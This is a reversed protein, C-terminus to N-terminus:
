EEEIKFVARLPAGDRGTLETRGIKPFVFEAMSVVARVAGMPDPEEFVVDTTTGDPNKRTLIGGTAAVRVWQEMDDELREFARIFGRKVEASLKNPSGKPRGGTRPTGKPRADKPWAM